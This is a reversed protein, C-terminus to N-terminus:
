LRVSALCSLAIPLWASYRSPNAALDAALDDLTVWQFAAVEDSAPQPEGDFHGTFVHDYEHEILGEGLEARYTFGGVRKLECSIGM